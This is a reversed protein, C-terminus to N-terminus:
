SEEAEGAATGTMRDKMAALAPSVKATWGRKIAPAYKVLVVTATTVVIV